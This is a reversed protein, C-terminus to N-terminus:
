LLDNLQGGTVEFKGNRGPFAQGAQPRFPALCSTTLYVVHTKYVLLLIM